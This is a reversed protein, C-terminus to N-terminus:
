IIKVNGIIVGDARVFVTIRACLQYLNPGTSREIVRFKSQKLKPLNKIGPPCTNWAKSAENIPFLGINYNGQLQAAFHDQHGKTLRENADSKYTFLPEITPPLFGKKFKKVMIIQNIKILDSVKVLCM